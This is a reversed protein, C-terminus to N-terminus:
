LAVQAFRLLRCQPCQLDHSPIGRHGGLPKWAAIVDDIVQWNYKGQEPEVDAWNFRIYVVSCPFRPSAKPSRAQSMWGQGPNAFLTDVERFRRVVWNTGPIGTSVTQSLGSLACLLAALALCFQLNTKLARIWTGTTNPPHGFPALTIVLGIIRHSIPICAFLAMIESLIYHFISLLRLHENDLIQQPNPSVTDMPVLNGGERLFCSLGEFLFGSGNAQYQASEGREVKGSSTQFRAMSGTLGSFLEM